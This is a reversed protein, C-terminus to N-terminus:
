KHKNIEFEMVITMDYGLIGKKLKGQQNCHTQQNIREICHVLYIFLLMHYMQLAFGHWLMPKGPTQYNLACLQVGHNWMM